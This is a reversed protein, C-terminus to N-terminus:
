RDSRRQDPPRQREFPLRRPVTQHPERTRKVHVGGERVTRARRLVDHVFAPRRPQGIEDDGIVVRVRAPRYLPVPVADEHQDARLDGRVLTMEEADPHPRQREWQRPIGASREVVNAVQAARREHRM